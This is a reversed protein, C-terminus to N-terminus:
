FAQDFDVALWGPAPPIHAAYDIIDWVTDHDRSQYTYTRGMSRIFDAYVFDYRLLAVGNDYEHRANVRPPLPNTPTRPQRLYGITQHCAAARLMAYAQFVNITTVLPSQNSGTASAAPLAINCLAARDRFSLFDWAWHILLYGSPQTYSTSIAAM